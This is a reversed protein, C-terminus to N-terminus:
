RPVRTRSKRPSSDFARFQQRCVATLCLQLICRVKTYFCPFRSQATHNDGARGHTYAFDRCENRLTNVCGQQNIYLRSSNFVTLAYQAPVYANTEDLPRDSSEYISWFATFNIYLHPITSQDLVTGNICDLARLSVNSDRAIGNCSAMFIGRTTNSNTWIEVPTALREGHAANGNSRDYAVVRQCAGTHVTDGLRLFVNM